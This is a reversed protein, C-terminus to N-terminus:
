RTRIVNIQNLRGDQPGHLHRGNRNQEDLFTWIEDTIEEGPCLTPIGPPYPVIMDASIRGKAEKWPIQEREAYSADRPLMQMPPVPPLKEEWSLSPRKGSYKRSIDRFAHILMSIDQGTTGLGAVCIAYFYDGFEIEIQYTEHLLEYLEYGELGLQRASIILRVPEYDFIGHQGILGRDL